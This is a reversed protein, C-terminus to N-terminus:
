TLFVDNINNELGNFIIQSERDVIVIKLKAVLQKTEFYINNFRAVETTDYPSKIRKSFSDLLSTTEGILKYESIMNDTLTMYKSLIIYDVAM